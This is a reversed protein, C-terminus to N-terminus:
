EERVWPYMHERASSSYAFDLGALKTQRVRPCDIPSAIAVSDLKIEIAAAKPIRIRM